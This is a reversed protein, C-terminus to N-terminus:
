SRVISQLRWNSHHRPLFPSGFELHTHASKISFRGNKEEVLNADALFRLIKAAEEKTINFRQACQSLTQGDSISTFLRVASYIWSSYFKAREETTLSRTKTFREKVNLSLAKMEQLKEQYYARLDQSGARSIQVLTLFYDKEIQIIGLYAALKHAQELSLEKDGRLVQSVLTPHVGMAEGMRNIEGRGKKPAEQIRFHLYDKYSDFPFVSMTEISDLFGM